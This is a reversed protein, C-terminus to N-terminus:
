KTNTASTQEGSLLTHVVGYTKEHLMVIANVLQSPPAWKSEEFASFLKAARGNQGRSPLDGPNSHSAVREYWVSSPSEAELQQLVRCMVLMAHSLSTGKICAYKASENDIWSIGVRNHLRDAYKFRVCVLAFMEIQSIIQDGTESVWLDVLKKPVEIEFSSTRNSSPDYVVAGAGAVGSEWAGDTFTLLPENMSGAKFLRPALSTIMSIASTCLLKLDEKALAKPIDALRGFSSVVFQLAKSIYFGAAFNLHGQIESARNRTIFGDDMVARLMNCIREIRGPKNALVFSGRHLQKLCVSIGLAAFDFVFDIAKVGVQAHDWGLLNLVASLSRTLISSSAKPSITPFDDYFCTSLSFLLKCLIHHLSKSVRNFSYVSATAGFPLVHNLYYKWAGEHQYGVVSLCRSKDDIGLQKYARSLDLTRGVWEDSLM